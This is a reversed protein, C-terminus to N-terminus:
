YRKSKWWKIYNVTNESISTYQRQTSQPITTVSLQEWEMFYTVINESTNNTKAKITTNIYCQATRVGHFLYCHKWVYSKDKDQNHYQQLMSSNEGWSILLVTKLGIIQRQRSQPIATVNLQEWGMFYTVSKESTNNTKAKITTNSYCQATRM